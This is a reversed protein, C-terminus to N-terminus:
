RLLLLKRAQPAVGEGRLRALYVGTAAPRGAEDRGDWRLRHVGAPLAHDVLTRVLAGRLDRIEVRLPPSAPSVDLSLTVSANFPNPTARGLRAVAPLATPGHAVATPAGRLVALATDVMAEGIGPAMHLTHGYSAGYGGELSAARTPLYGAYGNTYGLLLTHAVPSRRQLDLQLDVFPEGPMGVFALEDGVQLVEVATAITEAPAGHRRATLPRRTWRLRAADIGDDSEIQRAVREAERGLEEGQRTVPAFSNQTAVYPDLDGAAGQLFLATAGPFAEELYRAMAGPFDASLYRNGNGLVVAHCAYHVLIALPTGDAADDIRVVEVDPDVPGYPIRAGDNQNWVMDVSGDDRVVRRNFAIDVEGRGLRLRVPRLDARARRVGEALRTELEDLYPDEAPWSRVTEYPASLNLVRPGAHTHSAVLLWADVGAERLRSPLGGPNLGVLDLAVIAASRQGDDLVVIRAALSDHLGLSPDDVGDGGEYGSMPVGAAPSPTIDVRTVGAQLAAAPAAVLLLCLFVRRVLQSGGLDLRTM